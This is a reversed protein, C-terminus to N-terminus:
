RLLGTSIFSPSSTGSSHGFWGPCVRTMDSELSREGGALKTEALWRTEGGALKTEALWRTEGGALKTEALWRTEGGALKTEAPWRTERARLRDRRLAQYDM